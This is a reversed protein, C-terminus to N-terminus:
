TFIINETPKVSCDWLGVDSIRIKTNDCLDMWVEFIYISIAKRGIISVILAVLSRTLSNRGSVEIRTTWSSHTKYVLSKTKKGKSYFKVFNIKFRRCQVALCFMREDSIWNFLLFHLWCRLDNFPCNSQESKIRFGNESAVTHNM